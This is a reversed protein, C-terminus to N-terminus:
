YPKQFNGIVRHPLTHRMNKVNEDDGKVHVVGLLLDSLMMSVLLKNHQRLGGNMM